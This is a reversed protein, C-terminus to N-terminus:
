GQLHHLLGRLAILAGTLAMGIMVVAGFRAWRGHLEGGRFRLRGTRLGRRAEAFFLASVAVLLVLVPWWVLLESESQPLWAALVQRPESSIRSM